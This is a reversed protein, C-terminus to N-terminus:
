IFFNVIRVALHRIILNNIEDDSTVVNEAVVVFVFYNL